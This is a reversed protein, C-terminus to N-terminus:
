GLKGSSFQPRCLECNLRSYKTRRIQRMMHLADSYTPYPGRWDANPARGDNCAPCEGRHIRLRASNQATWFDSMSRCLCCDRDPTGDAFPAKLSGLRLTSNSGPVFLRIVCGRESSALGRSESVRLRKRALVGHAKTREPVSGSNIRPLEEFGLQM